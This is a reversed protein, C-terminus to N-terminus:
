KIKNRKNPLNPTNQKRSVGTKLNARKCCQSEHQSLSGFSLYLECKPKNLVIWFRNLERWRVKTTRHIVASYLLLFLGRPTSKPFPTRFIHQLNVSCGHRLAIEIFKGCIKLVKKGLFLDPPSSRSQQVIFYCCFCDSHPARYFMIRFSQWLKCSFFQSLKRKLSTTLQSVAVKKSFPQM